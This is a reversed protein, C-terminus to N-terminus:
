AGGNNDVDAERPARLTCNRRALEDLYRALHLARATCVTCWAIGGLVVEVEAADVRQFVAGKCAVNRRCADSM